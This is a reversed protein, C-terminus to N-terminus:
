SHDSGRLTRPRSARWCQVPLQKPYRALIRSSLDLVRGVLEQARTKAYRRYDNLLSEPSTATLKNLMWGPDLLLEAVADARDAGALHHAANEYWYRRESSAALSPDLSMLDVM